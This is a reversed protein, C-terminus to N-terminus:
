VLSDAIRAALEDVAAQVVPTLTDGPAAAGIEVGYLVLTPPLCGLVEALALADFVGFGHSSLGGTHNWWDARNLCRITGPAAGSSMADVLVVHTTGDLHALLGPGPRDLTDFAVDARVGLRARLADVVCWGAQDDGAPSGIGLVRVCKM